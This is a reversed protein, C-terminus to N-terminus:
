TWVKPDVFFRRVKETEDSQYAEIDLMGFSNFVFNFTVSTKGRLRSSLNTIKMSIILTIFSTTHNVDSTKVLKFEMERQFKLKTPFTLQRNGAVMPEGKNFVVGVVTGYSDTLLVSFSWREPLAVSESWNSMSHKYLAAGFASASSTMEIDQIDLDLHDRVVQRFGPVKSCGGIVCVQSVNINKYLNLFEKLKNTVIGQDGDLNVLVDKFKEASPFIAGDFTEDFSEVDLEGDSDFCEECVVEKHERIAAIREESHVSKQSQQPRFKTDEKLLMEDIVNGSVGFDIQFHSTRVINVSNISFVFGKLSGAGCDLVLVKSNNQPSINLEEKLKLSVALSESVFDVSAFGAEVMSSKLMNIQFYALFPSRPIVVTASELGTDKVQKKSKVRTFYDTLLQKVSKQHKTVSKSPGEFSVEVFIEGTNLNRFVCFPWISDRSDYFADLNDVSSFLLLSLDRVVAHLSKDQVNMPNLAGNTNYEVVVPLIPSTGEINFAEVASISKVFKCCSSGLDLSLFTNPTM